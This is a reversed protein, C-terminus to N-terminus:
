LDLFIIAMHNEMFIEVFEDDWDGIKVLKLAIKLAIMFEVFYILCGLWILCDM